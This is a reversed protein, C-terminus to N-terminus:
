QGPRDNSKTCLCRGSFCDVMIPCRRCVSFPRLDVCSFTMWDYGSGSCYWNRGDVCDSSVLRTKKLVTSRVPFIIRVLCSNEWNCGALAVLIDQDCIMIVGVDDM